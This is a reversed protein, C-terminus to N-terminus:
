VRRTLPRRGVRKKLTDLHHAPLKEGLEFAEPHFPYVDGAGLEIGQLVFCDGGDGRRGGFVVAPNYADDTMAVRDALIHQTGRRNRDRLRLRVNIAPKLLITTTTASTRSTGGVAPDCCAAPIRPKVLAPAVASRSRSRRKWLTGAGSLRRSYMRVM